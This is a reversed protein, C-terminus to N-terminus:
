VSCKNWKYKIYNRVYESKNNSIIKHKRNAGGKRQRESEKRSKKPNISYKRDNM